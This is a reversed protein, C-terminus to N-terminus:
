ALAKDEEVKIALSPCNRAANRLKQHLAEPPQEQLLKVLGDEDGQAFVEGAAVVCLGAGVCRSQDVKVRLM